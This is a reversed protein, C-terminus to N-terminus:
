EFFYLNKDTVLAWQGGSIKTCVLPQEAQLQLVARQFAMERSLILVRTGQENYLVCRFVKDDPLLCRVKEDGQPTYRLEEGSVPHTYTAQHQVSLPEAMKVVHSIMLQQASDPTASYNAAAVQLTPIFERISQPKSTKAILQEAAGHRVLQQMQQISDTLPTQLGLRACRGMLSGDTKGSISHGSNYRAVQKDLQQKEKALDAYLREYVNEQEELFTSVWQSYDWLAVDNQLFDTHTLGDLRYLAIEEKRFTPTYGEIAQLTLAQQYTAIDQELSDATQQLRVLMTREEPKLQLHATKERTYRTLFDAFLAQCNNYREVMRVFSNHISDCATQQRKIETLRPRIYQELQAYEIRKADGAIETYQWGPLKQDKAFHLCNGYFLRSQYLLTMLEEYNHLADRTPLLDYCRNGIEYYVAPLEPKWTQYDTLLYIAEYPSLQKSQELVVSYKEQAMGSLCAVCFISLFIYRKMLKSNM